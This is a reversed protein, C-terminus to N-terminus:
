SSSISGNEVFVAPMKKGSDLKVLVNGIGCGRTKVTVGSLKFYEKLRKALAEAKDSDEPKAVYKDKIWQWESSAPVVIVAQRPKDIDSALSYQCIKLSQENATGPPCQAVLAARESMVVFLTDDSDFKLTCIRVNGSDPRRVIQADTTNNSIM